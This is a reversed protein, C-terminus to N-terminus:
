FHFDKLSLKTSIDDGSTSLLLCIFQGNQVSPDGVTVALLCPLLCFIWVKRTPRDAMM